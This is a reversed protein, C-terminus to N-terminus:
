NYTYYIFKKCDSENLLIQDKLNLIPLTEADFELIVQVSVRTIGKCGEYVKHTYFKITVM